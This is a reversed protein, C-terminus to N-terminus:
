MNETHASAPAPSHLPTHLPTYTLPLYIENKTDIHKYKM